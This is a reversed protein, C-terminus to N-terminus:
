CKRSPIDRESFLLISQKIHTEGLSGEAFQIGLCDRESGRNWFSKVDESSTVKPVVLCCRSVMFVRNSFRMVIREWLIRHCASWEHGADQPRVCEQVAKPKKGGPPMRWSNM